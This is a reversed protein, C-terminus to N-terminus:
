KKPVITVKRNPEEGTSETIVQDFSSLEMHIIRRENAPMPELTQRKGTHVAQEAMRRALQQLQRTRRSRYGQIDIVLPVWKELKKSVILSAIYQLANLTETRRGILISLDDGNIDVLVQREEGSEEPETYHATVTAFVKMKELLEKVTERSTQLVADENAAITSSEAAPMTSKKGPFSGPASVEASSEQKLVLRVRAQRGGLGFLGKSGSDLIEVDVADRTIGLQSVGRNVAEDVTPAIIELTTKEQGM